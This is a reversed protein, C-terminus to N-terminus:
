RGTYSELPLFIGDPTILSQCEQSELALLLQWYSHSTDFNVFCDPKKEGVITLEHELNSMPYQHKIIYKNLERVDSTFLYEAGPKPVLLPACAWKSTLNPYAMGHRVLSKIFVGMIRRQDVSYNHLRVKVPKADPTLEIKLPPLRAPPGSSSSCRFIYVRDSVIKWSRTITPKSVM